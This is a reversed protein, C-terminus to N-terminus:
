KSNTSEYTRDIYDAIENFSYGSYNLDILLDEVIGDLKLTDAAALLSNVAEFSGSGDWGFYSM